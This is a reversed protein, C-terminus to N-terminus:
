TITKIPSQKVLAADIEISEKTSAQHFLTYEMPMYGSASTDSAEVKKWRNYQPRDMYICNDIKIKKPKNDKKTNNKFEWLESGYWRRHIPLKKAKQKHEEYAKNMLANSAFTLKVIPSTERKNHAQIKLGEKIMFGGLFPIISFIIIGFKRKKSRAQVKEPTDDEPRMKDFLGPFFKNSVYYFLPPFIMVLFALGYKKWKDKNIEAEMKLYTQVYRQKQNVIAQSKKLLKNALQELHGKAALSNCNRVMEEIKIIMDMFNVKGYSALILTTNSFKMMIENLGGPSLNTEDKPLEFHLMWCMEDWLPMYSDSSANVLYPNQKLLEIIENKNQDNWNTLCLEHLPTYSKRTSVIKPMISHNRLRDLCKQKAQRFGDNDNRDIDLLSRFTM